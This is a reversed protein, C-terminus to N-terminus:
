VKDGAKAQSLTCTPARTCSPPSIGCVTGPQQLLLHSQITPTPPVTTHHHPNHHMKYQLKYNTNRNYKYKNANQIAPSPPVTTHHRPNHHMWQVAQAGGLMGSSLESVATANGAGVLLMGSSSCARFVALHEANGIGRCIEVLSCLIFFRPLWAGGPQKNHRLGWTKSRKIPIWFYDLHM